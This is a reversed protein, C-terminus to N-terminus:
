IAAALDTMLTSVRTDLLALDLAGGISYFSVRSATHNSPNSTSINAFIGSATSAPAASVTNITYDTLNSRFTYSASASRNIGQLGANTVNSVSRVFVGSRSRLRYSTGTYIQIGSGSNSTYAAGYLNRQVTAPISTAWVAAHHSNQSDLNHNRNANIYKTAGDGLLGTERNYDGTVFNNNTPATGVLPVLAGSLTRAGALICSAKIASWIGDSKCGVVFAEVAAIVGAELEQGDAAEVALIYSNVDADSSRPAAFRYPNILLM